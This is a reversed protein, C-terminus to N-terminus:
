CNTTFRWKSSTVPPLVTFLYFVTLKFPMSDVHKNASLSLSLLHNIYKIHILNYYSIIM